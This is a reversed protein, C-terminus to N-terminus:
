DEFDSPAVNRGGPMKLGDRVHKELTKIEPRSLLPLLRERFMEYMLRQSRYNYQVGEELLRGLNQCSMRYFVPDDHKMLKFTPDIKVHGACWLIPTYMLHFYAQPFRFVVTQPVAEIGDLLAPIVTERLFFLDAIWKQLLETTRYDVYLVFHTSGDRTMKPGLFSATISQMCFGQSDDRKAAAGFRATVCTQEGKNSDSGMRERLIRNAKEIEAENFYVRRLQKRKTSASVYGLDELRLGTDPPPPAMLEDFPIEWRLDTFFKRVQVYAKPAITALGSLFAWLKREFTEALYVQPNSKSKQVKM